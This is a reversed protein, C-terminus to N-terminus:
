AHSARGGKRQTQYAASRRNTKQQAILTWRKYNQLTCAVHFSTASTRLISTCKTDVTSCYLSSHLFTSDWTWVQSWFVIHFSTNESSAYVTLTVSMPTVFFQGATQSIEKLHGELAALARSTTPVRHKSSV